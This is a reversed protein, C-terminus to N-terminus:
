DVMDAVIRRLEAQSLTGSPTARQHRHPLTMASIPLHSIKYQFFM